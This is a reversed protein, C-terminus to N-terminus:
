LGRPTPGADGACNVLQNTVFSHDRTPWGSHRVKWNGKSDAIASYTFIGGETVTVTEGPTAWGGIFARAGYATNTQLVM